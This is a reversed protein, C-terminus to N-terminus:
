LSSGGPKREKQAAERRTRWAKLREALVAEVGETTPEYFRAGALAEPLNPDPVFRGAVDHPYRYDRGYGLGKLLPTPANRLHLPVPLSGHSLAAEAAREGALYAANSKPACALYTVAQALPIRGEPLGIREVAQFAALAVSLATPDANGVDESAFIVLRRAVFLPDEGASIMRAMYYLAADPDSARLSKILASVVNYHDERDRDHSLVRAGAAQAVTEASLARGEPAGRKHLAVAAELLNLARRADGDAAEAIAAVADESLEIGDAGFGRERDCAARRVLTALTSAELRRLTFVRCRSLLAANVEFSPNETTAGILTITGREVHPLLVDQQARNFRHIEDLFLVTRGARAERAAVEVLERIEKVGITVASHPVFRTGPAEALLRALTTKGTGPPGWLLLSPLAGSAALARLPGKPGVLPEQGLVEDLHRPRM